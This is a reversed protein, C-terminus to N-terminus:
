PVAGPQQGMEPLGALIAGAARGAAGGGGLARCVEDMDALAAARAAPDALYRELRETLAAPTLDRQILEPMVERGAVINALGIHRVGRIALRGIAYTPWATRYVLVTPCHMLAAELTATGSAVAAAEAQRLVERAQGDVFSVSTPRERCGATVQEALTRMAPSVAPVLFACAGLKRELRAAASLMDPLLKVIETARSGPLLAIRRGASWPLPAEPRALTERARDVLPHGAYFVSLATGEFCAAEFPFIAILQNLIAAIHPVRGRHWAWVQPCIYHVTRIGRVHAHAALRLNFGPYDVTLLMDPRWSALELRMERMLRAFFRLHRLVEWYGMVATRDIHCLLELGEARMGDGGIGRFVIPRPSRARLERMLAAAHLDGSAEGAVILVRLPASSPAAGPARDAAGTLKDNDPM